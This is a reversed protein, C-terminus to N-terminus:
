SPLQIMCDSPSEVYVVVSRASSRKRCDGPMVMSDVTIAPTFASKLVGDSDVALMRNIGIVFTGIDVAPSSYMTWSGSPASMSDLM